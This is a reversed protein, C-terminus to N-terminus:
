SGGVAKRLEVVLPDDTSKGRIDLYARYSEAVRASKLGARVQGQYYYVMPFVGFTPEEDLFLALAEGRRNICREFESDAQPFANARLYVRGLEFHGIWTDFQTNAENLFRLANRNDGDAAAIMGDIISALAQSEPQLDNGLAIALRKAKDPAEAEVLVRAALFRIPRIQSTAVAKDAAAIAAPKRGRLLETYALAVLKNAARDPEKDAVDAAAGETFIRVADAFRGEYLALDGLGSATFSPGAQQSKALQQYSEAAQPIQGRLTLALALAQPAWPSQDMANRAVEEAAPGDGGYAAYTALNVKYLGRNPLIKVVERMEAVAAPMDRLKSLCLARNNRASADASYKAILDGYEKVCAQYDNTILFYLGRTRFRERETMTDLRNMAEKIYKEAEQPRGLNQSVIGLAAFGMGFNTDLEVAQTFGKFADEFESRSLAEMGQAYARVVDLSTASLSEMAFRQATDSENDGLAERVEGALGAVVGLVADKASATETQEAIVTGSVAEAAKVAVRFRNGEKTLAGSLVVGVGQKVALEVAATEDLVEPPRVGMTRNIGVRDFASIFGAGELALKMVPELTGDFTPDGTQNQFDAIVVAVPEHVEPIAPGRSVYWTGGVLLAVGAVMAAKTTRSLRKIVPIPKGNDDLANLANALEQSSQFREAPDLALARTIIQDVAEPIEPDVSRSAPLPEAMRQKLDQFANGSKPRAARGLLVDRMILGLAYVDARQDVPQGKAQEPAMYDLTGMVSGAVTLSHTAISTSLTQHGSGPGDPIAAVGVAPTPEAPGNVTRAIGFDMVLAQGSGDVMINAPKLDRHVIGVAHAAGMGAMVQRMIPLARPVPLKGEKALISALDHGDVFSMTIYKTGGIEGLDYIRVVNAHTVQRALLLERKFRREADLATTADTGVGPRITKIAVTVGLEADWAEYVAGMGGVGLMKTIRYRTGFADGPKMHLAEPNEVIAPSRNTAKRSTRPPKAPRAARPPAQIVTALTDPSGNRAPPKGVMTAADSAAPMITADANAAPVITADASATPVMTADVDVTPAARPAPQAAAADIDAPPAHVQEASVAPALGTRIEEPAVAGTEEGDSATPRVVPTAKL